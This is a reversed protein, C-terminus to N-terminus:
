QGATLSSVERRIRNSTVCQWRPRNLKRRGPMGRSKTGTPRASLRTCRATPRTASAGSRMRRQHLRPLMEERAAKRKRSRHLNPRINPYTKHVLYGHLAYLLPLRPSLRSRTALFLHRERPWLNNYYKSALQIYTYRECSRFPIFHELSTSWHAPWDCPHFSSLNRTHM